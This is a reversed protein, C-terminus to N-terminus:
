VILGCVTRGRCRSKYKSITTLTYSEVPSKINLFEFLASTAFSNTSQDDVLAYTRFTQDPNNPSMVDVLLTKGCDKVNTQKDRVATRLSTGSHEETESEEQNVERSNNQRKRNNHMVTTHNELSCIDCRVKMRCDSMKHKGLCKHCLELNKILIQKMKYTANKFEYCEEITHSNTLHM